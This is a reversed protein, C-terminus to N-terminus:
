TEENVEKSFTLKNNNFRFTSKDHVIADGNNEVISLLQEENDLPNVGKEWSGFTM